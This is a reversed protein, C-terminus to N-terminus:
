SFTEYDHYTIRVEESSYVPAVVVINCVHDWALNWKNLPADYIESFRHYIVVGPINQSIHKELESGILM